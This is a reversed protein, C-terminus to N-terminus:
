IHILSLEKDFVGINRTGEIRTGGQIVAYVIKDYIHKDLKEKVQTIIYELDSASYERIAHETGIEYLCNPNAEYCMNILEITKEIGEDLDQYAKWPDIHLLDFGVLADTTLSQKGNDQESGQGPGAHDRQLVVNSNKNRVYNVFENTSWNNVYGGDFEIQRRSPLLGVPTNYETSYQSVVDVINVSM